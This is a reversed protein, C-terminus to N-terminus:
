EPAVKQSVVTEYRRGNWLYARFHRTGNAEVKWDWGLTRDASQGRGNDTPTRRAEKNSLPPPAIIPPGSPRGRCSARRLKPAKPVASAAANEGADYVWRWQGKDKQWVTTFTGSDGKPWRAFGLNIATRRDCSSYSTAPWWQVARPPDKRGKLFDKAWVAQPTFMVADPDAWKRFATWQGMTQADKAFQREADVATPSAAAAALLLTLMKFAKRTQWDKV